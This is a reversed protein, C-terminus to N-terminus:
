NKGEVVCIGHLSNLEKPKITFVKVWRVLGRVNSLLTKSAFGYANDM